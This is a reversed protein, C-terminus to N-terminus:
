RALHQVEIAPSFERWFRQIFKERTIVAVVKTGVARTVEEWWDRAKDRSICSAFGVKAGDPFFITRQTNEMNAIWHRITISDRVGFFEQM